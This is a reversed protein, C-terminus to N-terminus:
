DEVYGVTFLKAYWFAPALIEVHWLVLQEYGVLDEVHWFNWITM